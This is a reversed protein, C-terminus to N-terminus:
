KKSIEIFEINNEKCFIHFASLRTQPREKTTYENVYWDSFSTYCLGKTNFEISFDSFKVLKAVCIVNKKNSKKLTTLVQKGSMILDFFKTYNKSTQYLKNEFKM